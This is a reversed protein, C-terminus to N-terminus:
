NQKNRNHLSNWTKNSRQLKDRKKRAEIFTKEKQKIKKLKVRFNSAEKNNTKSPFKPAKEIQTKVDKMFKHVNEDM